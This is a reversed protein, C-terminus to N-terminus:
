LAKTKVASYIHPKITALWVHGPGTLTTQTLGEGGLVINKLGGEVKKVGMTVTSDMFAVHGTSVILTQGVELAYEMVAGRLEIFAVGKGEIKQMVFGEGGMVGVGLDRNIHSSLTVTSESALFSGKQCIYTHDEDVLLPRIEGPSDSAFAIFGEGSEPSYNNMAISEGTFMRGLMKSASGLQAVNTMNESMWSMAGPTTVMVEGEELVCIAVPFAGGKIEYKM